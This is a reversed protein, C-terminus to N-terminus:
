LCDRYEERLRACILGSNDLNCRNSGGGVVIKVAAAFGLGIAIVILVGILSPAITGGTPLCIPLKTEIRPTTPAFGTRNLRYIGRIRCRPKSETLGDIRYSINVVVQGHLVAFFPIHSELVCGNSEGICHKATRGVGRSSFFATNPLGFLTTVSLRYYSGALAPFLCMPGGVSTEVALSDATHPIALNDADPCAATPLLWFRLTLRRERPRLTIPFGTVSFEAVPVPFFSSPTQEYSVELAGPIVDLFVAVRDTTDLFLTDSGALRVTNLGMKTVNIVACVLHVPLVTIAIM